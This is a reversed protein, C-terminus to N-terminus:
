LNDFPHFGFKVNLAARTYLFQFTSRRFAKCFFVSISTCFIDEMRRKLLLNILSLIKITIFRNEM